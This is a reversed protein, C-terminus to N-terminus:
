DEFQDIEEIEDDDDFDNELDEDVDEGMLNKSYIAGTDTDVDATIGKALKEPEEGPGHERANQIVKNMRQDSPSGDQFSTNDNSEPIM